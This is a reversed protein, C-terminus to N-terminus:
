GEGDRPDMQLRFCHREQGTFLAIDDKLELHRRIEVIATIRYPDVKPPM